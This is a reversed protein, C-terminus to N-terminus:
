ISKLKLTRNRIQIANRAQDNSQLLDKSRQLENKVQEFSRNAVSTDDYAAYTVPAVDYLREAKVLTRVSPVNPDDSYKWSEEKVTFAFSSKQINGLRLNVLLDNGATTDPAAFSYLLGTNDVALRLTVKNRALIFNPDHNFLAVADDELVDDFFGPAIREIWSGYFVQSDANFKAAYGEVDRSTADKARLEVTMFRREAKEHLKQIYDKEM